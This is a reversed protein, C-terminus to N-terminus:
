SAPMITLVYDLAKQYAAQDQLHEILVPMDPDKLDQIRKLYYAIDMQGQGPLVEYIHVTSKEEMTIDKLHCSVTDPGLLDFTQDILERCHTFKWPDNVFNCIDIHAKFHEDGMQKIMEMTQEPSTPYMWQMSELTYCTNQPKVTDLLFHIWELNEQWAKASFNERYCFDWRPGFAGSVNVCCRAGVYDALRFQEISMERAKKREAEITSFPSAWIGVEALLIDQERAAKVYADILSVPATYNVPFCAARAGMAVTKEAWQEPTDHPVTFNLGIRM